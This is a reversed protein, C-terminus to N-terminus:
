LKFHENLKSATEEKKQKTIHTYINQTTSVDAHGLLDQASKVDVGAEYLLSAYTHRLQHPTIGQLGVNNVYKEWGKLAQSQSLPNKGGDASFVYHDKNHKGQLKNALIDLLIIDRKGAETKPEKIQARNSNYFASKTIHIVKKEFDIDGWQLALAEGRRCGTYLLFYAFLGFMEFGTNNEIIKIQEASIMSRHNKALGKPVKVSTTPNNEIEGMVVAYDFIQGLMCLHNSVTKHSYTSLSYVYTNIDKAKIERINDDIFHNKLKEYIPDYTRKLTTPQVECAKKNYWLNAVECFTLGNEQKEVYAAIKQMVERETKGRFRVRKGNITLGKEYLGDPRRYLKQKKAM